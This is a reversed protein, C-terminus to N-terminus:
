MMWHSGSSYGDASDKSQTQIDPAFEADIWPETLPTCTFWEKGDRDVLGRAVAKRMQEPVPEDYHIWDWSSSEQGLPNQKFSKVTDLHIVSTGGSIHRIRLVDIAGSHNRGHGLIANKPIYKWLKGINPGSEESTFVETSKDWDTTIILGKTPYPPIGRTRGEDGEPIWPRFGLAFAVDEAAGMESKGFRNGTRAYRCHFVAADHFRKQKSHPQYFALACSRILEAKRKVLSLERRKLELTTAM